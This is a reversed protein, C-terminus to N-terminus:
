DKVDCTECVYDIMEQVTFADSLYVMPLELGLDHLLRGRLQTFAISDVGLTQLSERVDTIVKNSCIVRHHHRCLKGIVADTDLEMTVGLTRLILQTISESTRVEQEAGMKNLELKEVLGEFLADQALVPIQALKKMDLDAIVQVAGVDPCAMARHILPIGDAHRIPKVMAKSLDGLDKLMNSEWAGLQLSLGSLGAERRYRALSDLFNNSAM